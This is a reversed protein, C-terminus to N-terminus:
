NILSRLGDVWDFMLFQVRGILLSVRGMVTYGFHAGFSIMIFVIGIRATVGFAGKHEKSFYFYILTTIVGVLIVWAGIMAYLDGGDSIGSITNGVQPLVYGHLQQMISIGATNGMVFAISVRSVFSLKEFFRTFMLLGLMGPVLLSFEHNQSIPIWLQQIIVAHWILGVYYGASLGAYIHEALRYFPNDKYLFSFICLTLFGAISLEIFHTLSYTM